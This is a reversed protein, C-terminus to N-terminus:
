ELTPAVMPRLGCSGRGARRAQHLQADPRRGPRCGPRAPTGRRRRPNFDLSMGKAAVTFVLATRGVARGSRVLVADLQYAGPRLMNPLPLARGHERDLFAALRDTRGVGHDGLRIDDFDRLRWCLDLESSLQRWWPDFVARVEVQEGPRIYTHTQDIVLGAGLGLRPDEIVGHTARILVDALRLRMLYQNTSWPTGAVVYVNDGVVVVGSRESLGAPDLEKPIVEGLVLGEASLIMLGRHVDSVLLRGDDLQTAGGLM